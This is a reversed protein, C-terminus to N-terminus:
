ARLRLVAQDTWTWLNDPALASAQRVDAEAADWRELAAHVQARQFWYDSKPQLKLALAYDDLASTWDGLNSRAQARRAYLEAAKPDAALLRSVHWAAGRWDARAESANLETRHWRQVEAAAPPAFQEPHRGWLNAGLRQWEEPSLPTFSDQNVRQGT